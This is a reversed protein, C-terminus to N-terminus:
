YFWPYSLTQDIIGNSADKLSCEPHQDHAGAGNPTLGNKGTIARALHSCAAVSRIAAFLGNRAISRTTRIDAIKLSGLVKLM